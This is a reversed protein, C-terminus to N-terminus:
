PPTPSASNATKEVTGRHPSSPFAALFGRARKQAEAERDLAVLARIALYEREEALAGHKFQRRHRNALKLAHAPDGRLSRRAELLLKAEAAPSPQPAPQRPVAEAEPAQEPVEEVVEEPPAAPEEEPVPQPPAFSGGSSPAPPSEEVSVVGAPEFSEAEPPPDGLLWWAAAVIAGTAVLGGIVKGAWSSRGPPGAQSHVGDLIRQSADASFVPMGAGAILDRVAQPARPDDVLRQPEDM